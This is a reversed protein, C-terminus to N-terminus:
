DDVVKLLVLSRHFIIQLFNLPNKFTDVFIPTQLEQSNFPFDHMMSSVNLELMMKLDNAEGGLIQHNIIKPENM